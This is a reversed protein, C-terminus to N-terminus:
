ETRESIVVMVRQGNVVKALQMPLASDPVASAEFRMNKRDFKLWSPLPSGNAQTVSVETEDSVMGKISEPMEFSFGTGVTSAGKPLSVAVMLPTDQQSTNQLDVTVGSSNAGTTSGATASSSSSSGSGASSMVLPQPAQANPMAIGPMLAMAIAGMVKSEAEAASKRNDGAVLYSSAKVTV